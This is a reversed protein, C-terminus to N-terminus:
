PAAIKGRSESGHQKAPQRKTGVPCAQADRGPHKRHHVHDNEADFDAHTAFNTGAQEQRMRMSRHNPCLLDPCVGDDILPDGQSGLIEIKGVIRLM